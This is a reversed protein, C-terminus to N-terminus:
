NDFVTISKHKEVMRIVLLTQLCKKYDYFLFVKLKIPIPSMWVASNAHTQSSFL